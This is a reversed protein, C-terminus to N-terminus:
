TRLLVRGPRAASLKGGELVLRGNVVVDSVGRAMDNPENPNAEKPTPFSYSDPDFVFLDAFKGEAIMGRDRLRFQQAALSTAKMIGQELSVGHERCQRLYAPFAGRRQQEYWGYPDDADVPISDSGPMFLPHRTWAGPEVLRGKGFRRELDERSQQRPERRDGDFTFVVANAEDAVLGLLTTMSDEGREGAIAAVSKGMLAQNRSTMARVVVMQEHPTNFFNVKPIAARGEPTKVFARLEDLSKDFVGPFFVFLAELMRDSRRRHSLSSPIIDAAIELGRARATSVMDLADQSQSAFHSIQVRCGAREGIEIAELGGTPDAPRGPRTHSAYTANYKALIKSIRVVEDTSAYSCPIYALGTSMGVAGQRLGEEVMSELRKWEADDPPRNHGGAMAAWRIGGYGLLIASNISANGLRAVANAYGRVGDWPTKVALSKAAEKSILGERWWYELTKASAGATVSHGCNGNILTTVGQRVFKELSLDHLMLIEEHAHADVMGPAVVKGAADITKAANAHGLAGVAAIREGRIGIDGRFSPRGSGDVIRGNRVVLDLPPTVSIATSRTQASLVAGATGGAIVLFQRRRLKM